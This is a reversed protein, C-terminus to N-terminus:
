RREQVFAPGQLVIQPVGDRDRVRGEVCIETGLFAREPPQDFAPRLDEYIVVDFRDPDPHANGLNVFTPGGGVDPAYSAAAVPGAVAAVSGVVEGASHWAVPDDCTAVQSTGTGGLVRSLGFGVVLVVAVGIGLITRVRDSM